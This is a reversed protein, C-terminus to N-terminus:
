AHSYVSEWGGFYGRPGGHDGRSVKVSIEQAGEGSFSYFKAPKGCNKFSKFSTSGDFGHVKFTAWSCRYKPHGWWKHNTLKGHVTYDYEHVWKGVWKKHWTKIWACKKHGDKWWCKKVVKPYKKWYGQKKSEKTVTVKGAAVAKHNASAYPGWHGSFYPSASHGGAGGPGTAANEIPDASAAVPAGLALLAAAGTGVLIRTAFRM